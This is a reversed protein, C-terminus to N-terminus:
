KAAVEFEPCIENKGVIPWCEEISKVLTMKPRYIWCKGYNENWDAKIWFKCFGCKMSNTTDAM